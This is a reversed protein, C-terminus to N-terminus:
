LLKQFDMIKGKEWVFAYPILDSRATFYDDNSYVQFCELVRHQMCVKLTMPRRLGFFFKKKLDKGYIPVAAMNTM